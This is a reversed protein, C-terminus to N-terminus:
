FIGALKLIRSSTSEEMRIKQKDKKKKEEKELLEKAMIRDNERLKRRLVRLVGSYYSRADSGHPSSDRDQSIDQIRSEIDSKCEPTGIKVFKGRITRHMGSNAAEILAIVDNDRQYLLERM